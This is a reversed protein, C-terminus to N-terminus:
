KIKDLEINLKLVNIRVEGLLILQPKKTLYHVLNVLKQKQADNFKRAKAVRDVQLLVAQVPIDPDLGSASATLMEIPIEVTDSIMNASVFKKKRESMLKRLSDSTPGLNSGGSPITIYDNASPRSWFYTLSDNKQGILESGIIKGDKKILSGNARFSFFVQAIGTIFCPYIIGTLITMALLVKLAIITQKKM